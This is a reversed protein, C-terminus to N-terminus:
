NLDRPVVFDVAVGRGWTVDGWAATAFDIVTTACTPYHDFQPHHPPEAVLGRAMYASGPNHGLMMVVKGTAGQLAALMDDPEALYLSQLLEERAPTRLEAAIRTWTERTRAASSCLIQDPAYGRAALWGGVATASERGRRNLPRDHDDLAPSDWSSKAHRTLILRLTM